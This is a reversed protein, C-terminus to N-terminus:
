AAASAVLDAGIQYDVLADTEAQIRKLLDRLWTEFHDVWAEVKFGYRGLESVGFGGEWRDNVLPCMPVELWDGSDERHARLVAAIADHGDTFIDAEVRVLDGVTRKAPFRGGDVAPSIGEIVVRKRGDMM